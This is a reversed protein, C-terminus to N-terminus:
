VYDEEWEKAWRTPTILIRSEVFAMMRDKWSRLRGRPLDDVTVTNYGHPGVALYLYCGPEFMVPATSVVVGMCDTITGDKLRRRIESKSIGWGMVLVDLPSLHIVRVKDGVRGPFDVQIHENSPLRHNPTIGKPPPSDKTLEM